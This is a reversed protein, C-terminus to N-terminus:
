GAYIAELEKLSRTINFPSQEVLALAEERTISSTQAQRTLLAEAWVEPSQTLALRRMLGPVVDAGGTMVDSIVGPLRAAQAEMLVLPMGEAFSPFLFVDMAGLMLRPVDPRSGAFIVKDELGALAAQNRIASLEPGDGVLLLRAEPRRRVLAAMIEVMFPHNKHKFFRNVNGVVLTGLPIGLEVRVTPSDVQAHFPALDIACPFIRWRPDSQWHDGFLDPGGERNVVLGATAYRNIWQRMLAKYCRKLWGHRYHHLGDVNGYSPTHNHAIRRTVGEQYALRVVYGSFYQVHSHVADYPGHERLVRRLAPGYTWFRQPHSCIIIKGGLARVEEDYAGPREKHVLFDMQFRERDIRRLIHMLWTEPGGRDMAGIVHLIRIPRQNM